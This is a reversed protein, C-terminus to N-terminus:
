KIPSKILNYIMKLMNASIGDYGSASNNDLKMIEVEVDTEDVQEFQFQPSANTRVNSSYWLM